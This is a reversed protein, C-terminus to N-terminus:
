LEITEFDDPVWITGSYYHSAEETYDKKRSGFTADETHWLLLNKVHHKEAMLASEKVTKHHYQYPNFIERDRYLCFAESLVWDIDKCYIEGAETLPEDGPFLIRKGDSETNGEFSLDLYLKPLVKQAETEVATKNQEFTNPSTDGCGSICIALGLATLIMAYKKLYM